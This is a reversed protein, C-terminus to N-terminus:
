LQNFEVSGIAAVAPDFRRGFNEKDSTSTTAPLLECSRQFLGHDRTPIMAFYTALAASGEHRWTQAFM